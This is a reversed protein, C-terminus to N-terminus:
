ISFLQVTMCDLPNELVTFYKVFLPKFSLLGRNSGHQRKRTGQQIYWAGDIVYHRSMHGSYVIVPQLKSVESIVAAALAFSSHDRKSIFNCYQLWIFLSM